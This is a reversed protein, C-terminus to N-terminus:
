AVHIENWLHLAELATGPNPNDTSAVVTFTPFKGDTVNGTVKLKRHTTANEWFWYTKGNVTKLGTTLWVQKSSSGPASECGVERVRANAGADSICKQTAVNKLQWGFAGNVFRQTANWRQLSDAANPPAAVVFGSLNSALSSNLNLSTETYQAPAASATNALGLVAATALGAVAAIKKTARL